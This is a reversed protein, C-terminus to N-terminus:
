TSAHARRHRCSGSNGDGASRCTRAAPSSRSTAASGRSRASSPTMSRGGRGGADFIPRPAAKAGDYQAAVLDDDAPRSEYSGLHVITRAQGRGLGHERVLYEHREGFPAGPLERDLLATWEDLSRGTKEPLNRIIGAVMKDPSPM